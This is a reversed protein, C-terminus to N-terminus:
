AQEQFSDPRCRKCPRSGAALAAAVHSFFRVNRRAPRGPCSPRCAVGTTVVAYVFRGDATADRTTVARWAAEEDFPSM